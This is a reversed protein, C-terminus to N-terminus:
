VALELSALAVCHSKTKLVVIFYFLICIFTPLPHSYVNIWVVLVHSIVYIFLLYEVDDPFHLDFPYVGDLGLSCYKICLFLLTM